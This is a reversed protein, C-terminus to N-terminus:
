NEFKRELLTSYVVADRLNFNSIGKALGENLEDDQPIMDTIEETEMLM